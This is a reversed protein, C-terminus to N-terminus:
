NEEDNDFGKDSFFWNSVRKSVVGILLWIVVIAGIFIVFAFITQGTSYEIM